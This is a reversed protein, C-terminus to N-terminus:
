KCNNAAKSQMIFKVGARIKEVKYTEGKLSNYERYLSEKAATKEAFEERWKTIPPLMKPDLREQLVNRLYKEAADYLTLGTRNAEYFDNAAELLKKAKREALFGTEKKTATYEAYMKDHQRKLKRHEKFYGSQRIHEKLTDIRREVKKLEASASNLKGHMANVKIELGAIDYIENRQLFNFFESAAKLRTLGSRGQRTLIDSIVDALSPPKDNATEEALWKELKSIRARLGRIQQNTVAIERNIDGRETRIGRKEMQSASAGLHVTPFQDIGQRKYSRHDLVEDHGSLRLATNCYAAWAKRWDEAKTRDNWDVTNIKRGSVTHSKQGWKGNKDIPRMTLIIHAHPNSGDKDHICIDACMGATVFQEKVFQRALSINQEMSLEVPLAIEIERSLQANRFRESKEVANWLVSRESYEAPANEPLLIETHVIEVKHTYDHVIGDYENEITEGARYAAAAVASKGAGRTIIKICLHYIALLRKEKEQIKNKVNFYFRRCVVGIDSLLKGGYNVRPEPTRLGQNRASLCPVGGAPRV